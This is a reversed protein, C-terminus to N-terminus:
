WAARYDGVVELQAYDAIRENGTRDVLEGWRLIVFDAHEDAHDIVHQRMRRPRFVNVAENM